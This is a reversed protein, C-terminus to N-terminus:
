INGNYVNMLTTLFVFIGFLFACYGAITLTVSREIELNMYFLAPLILCMFTSATAGVLSYIIGLRVDSVAILYTSLLIVTTVILYMLKYGRNKPGVAVLNLFYTRAPAAQLPYSVGMVIIYLGRVVSALLDQPLSNLVNDQVQDGFLLYNSIGFTSYLILASLGVSYILKKMRPLSNDEMESYVSFINQHCTFSFVFKGFGNLWLISPTAFLLVSPSTFLNKSPADLLYDFLSKSSATFLLAPVDETKAAYRFISALIVIIISLLGILSTYKLKDLKSFYTFPAIALSFILLCIKPNVPFLVTEVVSSLLQKAIVMYSLSVGFCKVFVAFNVLFQAQPMSLATLRSLDAERGIEHACISLLTLGTAAFFGSM